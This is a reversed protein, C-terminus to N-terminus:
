HILDAEAKKRISRLIEKRILGSFPRIVFWYRRFKRYAVEDLCQIRTETEVTTKNGALVTLTFGWTAKLFGRAHFNVFSDPTLKQLNGDPKWFQGALGLLIEENEIQALMIFRQRLLGEKMTMRAAMGRLKFLIKIVWSGSFDLNDVLAYIKEPPQNVIISHKESFDYNPLFRDQLM